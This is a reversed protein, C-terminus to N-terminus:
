LSFMWRILNYADKLLPMALLFVAVPASLARYRSHWAAPLYATVIHGGDFRAVPMSELVGIFASFIAGYLIGYLAEAGAHFGGDHLKAEAATLTMAVGDSVGVPHTVMMYIYASALLAGLIILFPTLCCAIVRRECWMLVVIAVAAATVHVTDLSPGSAFLSIFAFLAVCAVAFAVSGLPGMAKIYVQDPLPLRRIDDEAIELYAGIVIPHMVWETGPFYRSRIPLRMRPGYSGLLSIRMVRVGCERMAIAHALEHVAVSLLIIVIVTITFLM